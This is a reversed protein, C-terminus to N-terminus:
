PSVPAASTAPPTGKVGADPNPVSATSAVALQQGDWTYTTKRLLSPCCNPDNPGYQPRTDVLKGGDISVAIGGSSTDGKAMPLAAVGGGAPTLVVYAIDGMTGGSSVPVVAEDIGDGTLDGYIVQSQVFEGGTDKLLQQVPATQKLDIARIAGSATSSTAPTAGAGTTPAASTADPTPSSTDSSSSGCASLALAAAAILVLAVIPFRRAM